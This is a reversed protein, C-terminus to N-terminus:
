CTARARRHLRRPDQPRDRHPDPHESPQPREVVAARDARRFASAPTSAARNQPQNAGAIRRHLDIEAEVASATRARPDRLPHRRWGLARARQRGHFIPREQGQPRREARAARLAGRWAAAALRHHVARVGGRLHAGGAGRDRDRLRPELTALYDRDVKVGRREMRGSRRCWRGTSGSM